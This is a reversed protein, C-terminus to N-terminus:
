WAAATAIERAHKHAESCWAVTFVIFDRRDRKKSKTIEFQIDRFLYLDPYEELMVTEMLFPNAPSGGYDGSSEDDPVCLGYHFGDHHGGYILVQEDSSDHEWEINDFSVLVIDGPKKGELPIIVHLSGDANAEIERTPDNKPYIWVSRNTSHVFFPAAKGNHYIKMLATPLKLGDAQEKSALVQRVRDLEAGFATEDFVFRQLDLAIDVDRNANDSDCHLVFQDMAVGGGKRRICASVDCNNGCDHPGCFFLTKRYSREQKMFDAIDYYPLPGELRPLCGGCTEGCQSEIAKELMGALPAGDIQPSIELSSYQPTAYESQATAFTLRNYTGM